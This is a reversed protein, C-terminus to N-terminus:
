QSDLVPLIIVKKALLIIQVELVSFMDPHNTSCSPEISNYAFSFVQEIEAFSTATSLNLSPSLGAL